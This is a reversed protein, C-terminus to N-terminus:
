KIENGRELTPINDKICRVSFGYQPHQTVSRLTDHQASITRSWVFHSDQHTSTWFVATQGFRNDFGSDNWYGAPRASFGTENTGRWHAGDKLTAAALTGLHRALINWEDDSPLHWGKPAIHLATQWDYLRGFERVTSSDNNAFHSIISNGEPTKTVRLNEAMWVQDGIRVTAYRNGDIDTLVSDTSLSQMHHILVFFIPFSIISIFM